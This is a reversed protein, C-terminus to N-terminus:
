RIPSSPVGTGGRSRREGVLEAIMDGLAVIVQPERMRLQALRREAGLQQTPSQGRSTRPVLRMTRSPSVSHSFGNREPSAFM